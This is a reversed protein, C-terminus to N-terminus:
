KPVVVWVFKEVIFDDHSDKCKVSVVYRSNNPSNHEIKGSIVGDKISLGKPLNTVEFSLTDNDQDAFHPKLNFKVWDEVKNFRDRIPSILIPKRNVAKKVVWNFSDKVTEKHPDSAHVTVFYVKENTLVKAIRGSIKDDNLALGKPLDTAKFKLQEGEPDQFHKAINLTVEDGVRNTRDQFPVSIKPPNNLPRQVDIVVTATDSAAHEDIVKYNFSDKGVFNSNPKYKFNGDKSLEIIGKKADSIKTYSLTDGDLDKDNKAVNGLLIKNRKTKFYDDNAIPPSNPEKNGVAIIRIEIRATRHIQPWIEIQLRYNGPNFHGERQIIRGGRRSQEPYIAVHGNFIIGYAASRENLNRGNKVILRYIGKRPFSVVHQWKYSGPGAWRAYYPAPNFVVEGEKLAANIDSGFNEAATSKSFILIFFFMSFFCVVSTAKRTYLSDFYKERIDSQNIQYSM